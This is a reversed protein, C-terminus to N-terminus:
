HVERCGSSVPQQEALSRKRMTGIPSLSGASAQEACLLALALCLLRMSKLNRRM